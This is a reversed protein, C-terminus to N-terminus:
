KKRIKRFTLMQQGRLLMQQGYSAKFVMTFFGSKSFHNKKSNEFELIECSVELFAIKALKSALLSLSLAFRIKKEYAIWQSAHHAGLIM